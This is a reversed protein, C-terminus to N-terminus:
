QVGYQVTRLVILAILDITSAQIHDITTPHQIWRQSIPLYRPVSHSQRWAVLSTTVATFLSPGILPREKPLARQVERCQGDSNLSGVHCSIINHDIPGVDFQYSCSLLIVKVSPWYIIEAM